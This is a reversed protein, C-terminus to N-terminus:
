SYFWVAGNMHPCGCWLLPKWSEKIADRASMSHQHAEFRALPENAVVYSTGDNYTPEDASVNETHSRM